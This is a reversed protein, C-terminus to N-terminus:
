EFSRNFHSALCLSTPADDNDFDDVDVADDDDDDDDHALIAESAFSVSM